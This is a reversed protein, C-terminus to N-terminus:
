RKNSGHNKKTKPKFMETKMKGQPPYKGNYESAIGLGLLEQCLEKTGSIIQGVPYLRGLSNRWSKELIVRHTM